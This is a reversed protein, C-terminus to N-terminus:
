KSNVTAAAGVHYFLAFLCERLASLAGGLATGFPSPAKTKSANM